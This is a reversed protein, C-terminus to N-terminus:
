FQSRLIPYIGHCPHFSITQAREPWFRNRLSGESPNAAIRRVPNPKKRSYRTLRYERMLLHTNICLEAYTKFSADSKPDYERIASLLGLMGEQTLDESDGGALFFPRACARVVRSYRAALENEAEADGGVCMEHLETDSLTSYDKLAREGYNM